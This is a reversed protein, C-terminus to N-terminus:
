AKKRGAAFGLGAIGALLLPLAAPLPVDSIANIYFQDPNSGGFAFAISTAGLFAGGIAAAVAGAFTYEVAAAGNLSILLTNVNNDDLLVHFEGRFSLTRIDFAGGTFEILVSEDITVNDDSSPVCQLAADLEKCAGLGAPLGGSTADLYAFTDPPTPATIRMAVGDLTLNPVGPASPLLGREGNTDAENAFDLVAADAGATMAFAAAVALLLRKM